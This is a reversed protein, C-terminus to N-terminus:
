LKAANPKNNNVGGGKWQSLWQTYKKKTRRQMLESLDEWVM